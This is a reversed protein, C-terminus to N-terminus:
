QVPVPKKRGPYRGHLRTLDGGGPQPPRVPGLAGAADWSAIIQRKVPVSFPIITSGSNLSVRIHSSAARLRNVLHGFGLELGHERCPIFIGALSVQDSASPGITDNARATTRYFDKGHPRHRVLPLTILTRRILAIAKRMDRARDKLVRVLRKALPELDHMQHRGALLANARQLNLPLQTEAGIFGRQIHGVFDARRHHLRFRFQAANDLNVLSPDAALIVVPMPVFAVVAFAAARASAFNRDDTGHLPLAIDDGAHKFVYVLRANFSKDALGHRVSDTQQRRVFMLHVAAQFFIRTLGHMMFSLLIDDAGNVRVRNLAEPRDELAAHDAREVFNTRFIKRQVDRLKLEAVVVALVRINEIRNNAPALSAM